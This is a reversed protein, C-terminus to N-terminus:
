LEDLEDKLQAFDESTTPKRVLKQDLASKSTDTLMNEEVQVVHVTNDRKFTAKEIQDPSVKLAVQQSKHDNESTNLAKTFADNLSTSAFVQSSSILVLIMTAIKM